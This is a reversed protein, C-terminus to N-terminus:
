ITGGNHIMMINEGYKIKYVKNFLCKDIKNLYEYLCYPFSARNKLINLNKYHAKFVRYFYNYSKLSEKLINLEEYRENKRDEFFINTKAEIFLIHFENDAKKYDYEEDPIIQYYNNFKEELYEKHEKDGFHLFYNEDKSFKKILVPEIKKIVDDNVTDFKFFNEQIENKRELVFKNLIDNTTNM